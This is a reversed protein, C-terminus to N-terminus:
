AASSNSQKCEDIFKQFSAYRKAKFEEYMGYEKIERNLNELSEQENKLRISQVIGFMFSAGAVIVTLVIGFISITVM